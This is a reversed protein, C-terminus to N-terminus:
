AAVEPRRCGADLAFVITARLDQAAIGSRRRARYSRVLTVWEVVGVRYSEPAAVGPRAARYGASCISLRVTRVAM